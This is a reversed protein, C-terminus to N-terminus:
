QWNAINSDYDKKPYRMFWTTEGKSFIWEKANTPGGIDPETSRGGGMVRQVIASFLSVFSSSTLSPSVCAHVYRYLDIGNIERYTGPNELDEAAVLVARLYTRLSPYSSYSPLVAFHSM